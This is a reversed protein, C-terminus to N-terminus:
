RCRHRQLIEPEAAHSLESLLLKLVETKFSKQKELSAKCFAVGCFDSVKLILFGPLCGLAPENL